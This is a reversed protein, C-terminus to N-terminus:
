KVMYVTSCEDAYVQGLLELTLMEDIAQMGWPNKYCTAAVHTIGLANLEAYLQSSDMESFAAKYPFAARGAIFEVQRAKNPHVAVVSNQPLGKIFEYLPLHRSNDQAFHMSYFCSFALSYLATLLFLFLLLRRWNVNRLHVFANSVAIGFLPIAPVMLRSHIFKTGRAALLVAMLAFCLLLVISHRERSALGKTLGYFVLILVPGTVVSFLLFAASPSFPLSVSGISRSLFFWFSENFGAPLMLLSEPSLGAVAPSSAAIELDQQSAFFGTGNAFSFAFWPIILLATLAVFLAIGKVREQKGQGSAHKGKLLEYLFALFFAPVLITASLKSLAAAAIAFPMAYLFIREGTQAFRWYIYFCLLVFISAFTEVYNVAGFIVLLPHVAVFALGPLYNKPFIRRLLVFALFLQLGSFALPFLKASALTFPVPLAMFPLATAIYYLPVHLAPDDLPLTGAEVLQRTIGLHYLSDSLAADPLVFLCFLRAALGIALIAAFLKQELSLSDLNFRM